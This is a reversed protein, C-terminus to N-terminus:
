GYSAMVTIEQAAVLGRVDIKGTVAASILASRREKLLDIARRAETTLEDLKSTERDLFTVIREQEEISPVALVVEKLSERNIKPMAVRQSELVALASFQESLISWILFDNTLGSHARLPYMDASCLCDEPAM